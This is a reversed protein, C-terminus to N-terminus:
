PPQRRTRPDGTTPTNPPRPRPPPYRPLQPQPPQSLPLHLADLLIHRMEGMVLKMPDDQNHFKSLIPYPLGKEYSLKFAKSFFTMFNIGGANDM